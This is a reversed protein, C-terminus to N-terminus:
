ERVLKCALCDGQADVATSLARCTRCPAPGRAAKVRRVTSESVECAKAAARNSLGQDLAACITARIEDPL